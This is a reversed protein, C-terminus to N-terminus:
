MRNYYNFVSLKTGDELHLDISQVELVGYHFLILNIIKYQLNKILIGLGGGSRDPRHKWTETLCVPKAEDNDDLNKIESLKNCLNNCTLLIIRCIM